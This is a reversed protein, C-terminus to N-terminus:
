PALRARTWGARERTYLLRDHLRSPRGQWFEIAQPRVRFGGWYPPRAPHLGHRVGMEAARALLWAKGPIPRSQPSAWAGIRSALPRSAFYEDSEEASTREVDGDIRVQRELEAWFFLLCARPNAALELGKRSEYNTYFVFGNADFGKLLVTRASPRGQADATALTMANVELVESAVAEDWWRAFQRIPDADAHEEDLAGRKYDTRIQAINKM